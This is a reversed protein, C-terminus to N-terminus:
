KAASTFAAEAQFAMDIKEREQEHTLGDLLKVTVRTGALDPGYTKVSALADANATGVVWLTPCPMDRPEVPPYDLMAGMWALSVRVTGRKWVLRDAESFAQEDLSGARSAELIPNWKALADVIYQRFAGSAAAGFPIGIYVMSRVRRSRLALYRGVNAGYSYGWVSFTKAGAADAVALFDATLHDVSYAEVSAPRDSEGNGRIDVTIVTFERALREVYGDDHWTRRTQGGGHLLMVAPGSGTADYAIRTGDSSTAFLTGSSTM